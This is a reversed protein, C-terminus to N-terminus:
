FLPGEGSSHTKDLEDAFASAVREANIRWSNEKAYRPWDGNSCLAKPVAAAISSKDPHQLIFGLLYREVVDLLPGAGSSALVPLGFQANLNLVGSASRFDKSYTLLLLDSVRFYKWVEDNPIYSIHWHCRHAVGLTSALGRYFESPKQGASLERGAVLLHASPLSQLAAIIQDLNKSDRIHGFSLLVHAAAPIGFLRRLDTKTSGGLPVPYPGHPLNVARLYANSGFTDLSSADHTFVVDLFSYAKRISYRHWWQPGRVYDRVPDHIVAGFRIGQRQCRRLKPAWLPAFYESWSSLLVADPRAREIQNSLQEYTSLTYAAFDLARRLKTRGTKRKPISLAPLRNVKAPAIISDPALWLVEVNPVLALAEAQHRSYEAIGGEPESCFYLLKM